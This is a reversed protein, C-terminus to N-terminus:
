ANAELIQVINQAVVQPADLHLHHGCGAVTEWSSNRISAIRGDLDPVRDTIGTEGLLVRVEAQIRSGLERWTDESLRLPNPGRLRTDFRFRLRGDETAETAHQVMLDAGRRSLGPNNAMIRNAAADANKFIRFDPPPKRVSKVMRALADAQEEPPSTFGGCADLFLYHDIQDPAVAAHIFGVIGGLSHAVLLKPRIGHENQLEDLALALDKLHDYQHHSGGPPASESFGHGRWDMCLPRCHGVLEQIVFEYSRGTDLFGHLFLVVPDDRECAAGYDWVHLPVGSSQLTRHEPTLQSMFPRYSLLGM